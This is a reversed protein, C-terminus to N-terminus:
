GPPFLLPVYEAIPGASKHIRELLPEDAELVLKWILMKIEPPLRADAIGCRVGGAPGHQDLGVVRAPPGASIRYRRGSYGGVVIFTRTAELQEFQDPALWSRLLAEPDAVPLATARLRSFQERLSKLAAKLTATPFPGLEQVFLFVTEKAEPDFEESIESGDETKVVALYGGRVLRRFRDRAAALEDAHSPRFVYQIVDLRLEIQRAM